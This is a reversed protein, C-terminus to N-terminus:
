RRKGREDGDPRLERRILALQDAMLGTLFILLSAILLVIASEPIDFNVAVGWASYGFGVAFLTTAIPVFVKLPNFLMVIRMILMGFKIGDRLPSITSRGGKRRTMTIPVYEVTYGDQLLSLTITTSFSFGNPLINACGLIRERRILRFGSNLDPIRTGSLYNAFLNLVKKGPARFASTQTINGRSGVVMDAGDMRAVLTGIDAARHQGDADMTLIYESDAIRAAHKLSAGYGRNRGHSLLKAGAKRIEDATRDSSGDDVAIIEFPIGSRRMAEGVDAIVNGITAAENYAPIVVTIRPKGAQAEGM